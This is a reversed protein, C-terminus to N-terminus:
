RGSARWSLKRRHTSPIGAHGWGRAFVDVEQDQPAADGAEGEGELRHLVAAHQDQRLAVPLLAVGLVGLAAHGRDEPRVILEREVDLVGEDGPGAEAVAVGHLDGDLLRRLPDAPQLGQADLEVPLRRVAEVEGPLPAVRAAAHGM